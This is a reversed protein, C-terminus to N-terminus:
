YHYYHGYGRPSNTRKTEEHRRRVGQTGVWGQHAKEPASPNGISHFGGFVGIEPPSVRKERGYRQCQCIRPIDGARNGTSGRCELMCLGVCQLSPLGRLDATGGYSLYTASKEFEYFGDYPSRVHWHAGLKM